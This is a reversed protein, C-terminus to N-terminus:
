LELVERYKPLLSEPDYNDMGINFAKHQQIRFTDDKISECVYDIKKALDQPDASYLDITTRTEFSGTYKSEALWSPPLVKNNPEVDTMIVPLASLLAENMPLCLGAYRRPLIMAHYGRYLDAENIPSSTDVVVRHDHKPIWDPPTQAKLTLTFESSTYELARILDLTGNRDNVAARGIIHLFQPTGELSLNTYAADAFDEHFTPPPLYVVKNGYMEIMEDLHWYSPSLLKTPLALSPNMFNDFFEYNYQNYTRVGHAEALKIFKNNYFLECTLVADLGRIFREIDVATPFGRVLISNMGRYTEMFQRNGNFPTSDIIMVRFPKLMRVLNRTQNGLGTKDARVIIGLNM